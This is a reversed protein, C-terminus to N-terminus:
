LIFFDRGEGDLQTNTVYCLNDLVKVVDMDKSFSFSVRMKEFDSNTLTVSINYLREIDAIIDIMFEEEYVLNGQRWAAIGDASIKKRSITDDEKNLKLSQGGSLIGVLEDGNSIRIKGDASSVTLQKDKPYAKINFSKAEATIIINGCHIVLPVAVVSKSTFFAEGNLTVERKKNSSPDDPVEIISAANLWVETSDSLSLYGQQAKTVYKKASANAAPKKIYNAVFINQKVIWFLALLGAVCSIMVVAILKRKATKSVTAKDSIDTSHDEPETLVLNGNEDVYTFSPHNKRIDNYISKVAKKLSLDGARLNNIFSFLEELEERSCNNKEYQRLLYEIRQEM